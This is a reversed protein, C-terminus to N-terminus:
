NVVDGVYVFNGIGSRYGPVSGDFVFEGVCICVTVVFAIGITSCGNRRAGLALIHISFGTRGLGLRGLSAIRLCRRRDEGCECLGALLACPGRSTLVWGRGFSSLLLGNWLRCYGRIVLRKVLAIIFILLTLRSVTVTIFDTEALHNSAVIVGTRTFPEM